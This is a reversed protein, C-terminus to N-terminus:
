EELYARVLLWKGNVVNFQFQEIRISTAKPDYTVKEMKKVIEGMTTELLDDGNSQYVVQSLLKPFITNLEDSGYHVVPESDDVGKVELPLKTLDAMATYPSSM